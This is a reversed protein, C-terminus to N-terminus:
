SGRASEEVDRGLVKMYVDEFRAREGIVRLVSDMSGELVLKGKNIIGVRSCAGEILPLMHSSILFSVGFERALRLIERKFTVQTDIEINTLPEDMVVLKPKVILSAAIATKQLGGRSLARIPKKVDDSMNLIDVYYRVYEEVDFKKFGRLAAVYYLFELPTLYSPLNPYDPVYGVRMLAERRSTWVDYGDIVVSGRDPKLLGVVIRLTTTKGAGNPGVLCYVEGSFVDISLGDVAVVEGFRKVLDKAVLVRYKTSISRTSFPELENM